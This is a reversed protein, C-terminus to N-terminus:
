RRIEGGYLKITKELQTACSFNEEVTRRGLEGMEKAREPNQLLQVLRSAMAADDNSDVIFGTEGEIIAESAGGVKTAVVPLNASM